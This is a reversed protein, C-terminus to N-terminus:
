LQLGFTRTEFKLQVGYASGLKDAGKGFEETHEYQPIKNRKGEYYTTYKETQSYRIFPNFTSSM